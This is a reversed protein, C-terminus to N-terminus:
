NRQIILSVLAAAVTRQENPLLTTTAARLLLRAINDWLPKHHTLAMMQSLPRAEESVKELQMQSKLTREKRLVRRWKACREGVQQCRFFLQEDNPYLESTHCPM